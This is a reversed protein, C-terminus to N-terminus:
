KEVHYKKMFSDLEKVFTPIQDMKIKLVGGLSIMAHEDDGGEVEQANESLYKPPKPQTFEELLQEANTM